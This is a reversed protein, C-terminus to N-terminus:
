AAGADQEHDPPSEAVLAPEEEPLAARVIQDLVLTMPRGQRRGERYLRRILENELRPSYLTRESSM